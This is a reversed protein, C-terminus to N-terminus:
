GVADILEYADEIKKAAWKPFRHDNEFVFVDDPSPKLNAALDDWKNRWIIYHEM